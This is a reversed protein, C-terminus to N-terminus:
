HNILIKEGAAKGWGELNLGVRGRGKDGEKRHTATAKKERSLSNPPCSRKFGEATFDKGV